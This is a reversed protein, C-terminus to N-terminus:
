ANRQLWAGANDIEAAMALAEACSAGDADVAMYHRRIATLRSATDGLLAVLEPAAGQPNRETGRQAIALLLRTSEVAHPITDWLLESAVDTGEGSTGADDEEDTATATATATPKKGFTDTLLRSWATRASGYAKEDESTRQGNANPKDASAKAMSIVGVGRAVIASVLEDQKAATLGVRTAYFLDRVKAVHAKDQATEETLMRRMAVILKEGTRAADVIAGAFASAKASLKGETKTSM